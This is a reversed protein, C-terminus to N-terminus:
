VFIISIFSAPIAWNTYHRAVPQGAPTWDGGPHFSKERIWLTWVPESFMDSPYRTGLAFLSRVEM